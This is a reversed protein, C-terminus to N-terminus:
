RALRRGWFAWWTLTQTVLAFGFLLDAVPAYAVRGHGLFPPTQGPGPGGQYFVIGRGTLIGNTILQFGLIIAYALWFAKSALVRTGLLVDLLVSIVVGASAVALYSM